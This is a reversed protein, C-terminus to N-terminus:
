WKFSTLYNPSAVDDTVPSDKGTLLRRYESGVLALLSYFQNGLADRIVSTWTKADEKPDALVRSLLDNFIHVFTQLPNTRGDYTRTPPSWGILCRIEDRELTHTFYRILETKGCGHTGWVTLVRLPVLDKNVENFAYRLAELEVDRTIPAEPLHFRAFDDAAGLKFISLDGDNLCLHALGKLDFAVGELCSYRQDVDKGLCKMIISSLQSPPFIPKISGTLAERRLWELPPMVDATVHHHIDALMDVDNEDPSEPGGDIM